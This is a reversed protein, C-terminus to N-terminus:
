NNSPPKIKIIERLELAENVAVAQYLKKLAVKRLIKKYLPDQANKLEALAARFDETARQVRPDISTDKEM